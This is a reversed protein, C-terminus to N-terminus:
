EKILKIRQIRDESILEVVYLGAANKLNLKWTAENVNARHYVLQGTSSFVNITVNELGDLAVTVDGNTPNPYILNNSSSAYERQGVTEDKLKLV